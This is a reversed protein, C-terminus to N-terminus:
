ATSPSIGDNSTSQLLLSHFLATRPIRRLSHPHRRQRCYHAPLWDTSHCVLFAEFRADTMSFSPSGRRNWSRTHWLRFQLDSTPKITSEHFLSRLIRHKQPIARYRKHVHVQLLQFTKTRAYAPWIAPFLYIWFPFVPKPRISIISLKYFLMIWLKQVGVVFKWILNFTCVHNPAIRTTFYM